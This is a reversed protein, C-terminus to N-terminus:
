RGLSWITLMIVIIAIFQLLVRLRMLQQSRSPSGARMLNVLGLVLVVAVATIAIPVLVQSMLQSMAGRLMAAWTPGDRPKQGARGLRGTMPEAAPSSGAATPVGPRSVDGSTARARLSTLDPMPLAVHATANENQAGGPPQAADGGLRKAVCAPLHRAQNPRSGRLEGCGIRRRDLEIREITGRHGVRCAAKVDDQM